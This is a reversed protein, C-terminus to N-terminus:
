LDVTLPRNLVIEQRTIRCDYCLAEVGGALAASLAAGYVPDIDAAITFTECDMRQVLYFMVARGGDAVVQTLEGLHKTGRATVADPFEAPGTRKLHVNKVEVYCPPLGSDELVIDVRSNRGYRVERRLGAYGTLEPVRGEVIAQAVIANPHQTNIGVLRGDVEILEWSYKLKRKPNRAPSLWVRSGPKDLGLMSGPNACHATVVEGGALAVDALFRKYRRRLSGPILPDAFRM